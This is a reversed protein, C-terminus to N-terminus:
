RYLYRFDCILDCLFLTLCFPSSALGSGQPAGVDPGRCPICCPRGTLHAPNAQTVWAAPTQLAPPSPHRQTFCHRATTPCLPASFQMVARQSSRGTRTLVKPLPTAASPAKPPPTRESRPPGHPELYAGRANGPEEEGGLGWENHPRPEHSCHDRSHGAGPQWSAPSHQNLSPDTCLRM